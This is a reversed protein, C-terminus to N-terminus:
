AKKFLKKRFALRKRMDKMYITVTYSRLKLSLPCYLAKVLFEYLKCMKPHSNVGFEQRIREPLFAATCVRVSPM